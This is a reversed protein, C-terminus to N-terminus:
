KRRKIVIDPQHTPQRPQEVIPTAQKEDKAKVYMTLANAMVEGPSIGLRRGLELLISYTQVPVIMPVMEVEGGVGLIGNMREIEADAKIAM